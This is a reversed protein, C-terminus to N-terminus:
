QASQVAFVRAKGPGMRHRGDRRIHPHAPRLLQRPRGPDGLAYRSRRKGITMFATDEMAKRAGCVHFEARVETIPQGTFYNLLHFAHTGIDGTASARGVKKPDRRWAAGKFTPDAPATAWDQVYEVHVQRVKGIMGDLIMHRAQRAMSHYPYPYTMALVLGTKRQLEVLALADKLSSTM